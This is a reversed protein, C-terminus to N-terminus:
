KRDSAKLSEKDVGIKAARACEGWNAHDKTPCGARCSSKESM